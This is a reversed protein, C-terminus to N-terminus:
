SIGSSLNPWIPNAHHQRSSSGDPGLIRLGSEAYGYPLLLKQGGKKLKVKKVMFDEIGYSDDDSPTIKMTPLKQTKAGLSNNIFTFMGDAGVIASDTKVSRPKYVKREATIPQQYIEHGLHWRERRQGAM